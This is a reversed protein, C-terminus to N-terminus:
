FKYTPRRSEKRIRENMIYLIFRIEKVYQESTYFNKIYPLGGISIRILKYARSM